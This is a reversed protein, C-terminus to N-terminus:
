CWQISIYAAIDGRYAYGPPPWPWWFIHIGYHAGLKALKVFLCFPQVVTSHIHHRWRFAFLWTQGPGQFSSFMQLTANFFLINVEASILEDSLSLTNEVILILSNTRKIGKWLSVCKLDVFFIEEISHVCPVKKQSYKAFNLEKEPPISALWARLVACLPNSQIVFINAHKPPSPICTGTSSGGVSYGCLDFCVNNPGSSLCSTYLSAENNVAKGPWIAASNQSILTAKSLKKLFLKIRLNSSAKLCNAVM